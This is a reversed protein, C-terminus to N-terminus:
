RWWWLLVGLGAAVVVLTIGYKGTMSFEFHAWRLRMHDTENTM